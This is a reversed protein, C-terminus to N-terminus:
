GGETSEKNRVSQTNKFIRKCILISLEYLGILPIAMLIQSVTDPPTLIAGVIFAGVIAYKRKKALMEPTLVGLKALFFVGIPLQFAFGFALLTNLALNLYFRLSPEPSAADRAYDIFFNFALPFIVFYAFLAGSCFLAASAIAFPLAAKKEATKLGPSAFAWFQYFLYPSALFLSIVFSVNLYALFGEPLTITILKGNGGAAILAQRIPALLIQALEKDFGWCIFFLILWALLARILRSRLEGLHELIGMNKSDDPHYNKPQTHPPHPLKHSSNTM